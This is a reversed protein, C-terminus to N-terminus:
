NQRTFTQEQTCTDGSCSRPVFLQTGGLILEYTIEFEIEKEGQVLADPPINGNATYQYNFRDVSIVKGNTEFRGKGEFLIYKVPIQDKEHITHRETFTGDSIFIYQTVYDVGFYTNLVRSEWTGQIEALYPNPDEKECSALGLFLLPSLFYILKKM